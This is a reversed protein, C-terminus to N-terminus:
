CRKKTHRKRKTKSCRSKDQQHKPDNALLAIRVKRKLSRVTGSSDIGQSKLFNKLAFADDKKEDIFDLNARINGDNTRKCPETSHDSDIFKKKMRSAYTSINKSPKASFEKTKSNENLKKNVFSPRQSKSRNNEDNCLPGLSSEEPQVSPPRSFSVPLIASMETAVTEKDDSAYTTLTDGDNDTSQAVLEVFSRSRSSLKSLQCVSDADNILRSTSPFEFKEKNNNGIACKFPPNSLVSANEKGGSLDAPHYGRPEIKRDLAGISSSPHYPALKKSLFNASSKSIRKMVNECSFTEDSNERSGTCELLHKRSNEDLHRGPYELNMEFLDPDHFLCSQTDACKKVENQM